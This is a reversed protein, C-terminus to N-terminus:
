AGLQSACVEWNKRRQHSATPFRVGAERVGLPHGLWQAICPRDMTHSIVAGIGYESADCALILPKRKDYHVVVISSLLMQKSEKLVEECEKTWEWSHKHQLLELLPHLVTSLNGLFRAYYNLLGLYSKLETVNAPTPAQVIAEVKEDTPHLGKADVLYGMYEVQTQMFKCKSVKLRINHKAIRCLVNELTKVHCELTKVHCADNPGTVLVDDGRCITIQM